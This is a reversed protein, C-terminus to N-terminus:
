IEHIGELEVRAAQLAQLTAQQDAREIRVCVGCDSSLHRPVPILKCRIGAQHLAKEARIAHSTSHVLIVAYPKGTM